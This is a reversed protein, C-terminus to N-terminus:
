DTVTQDEIKELLSLMEMPNDNKKNGYSNFAIGTQYLYSQEPNKSIWRVSAFLEVNEQVGPIDIKVVLATGAKLREDCLFKVGGRSFNIVPYYVESYNHKLFLGPKNKYYLATGPITFRDCTRKKVAKGGTSIIKPDIISHSGSYKVSYESLIIM